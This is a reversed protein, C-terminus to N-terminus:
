DEERRARGLVRTLVSMIALLVLMGGLGVPLRTGDVFTETKAAAAVVQPEEFRYSDIHNYSHLVAGEQRRTRRSTAPASV